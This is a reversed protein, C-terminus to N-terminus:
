ITDFISPLSEENEERILQQTLTTGWTTKDKGKVGVDLDIYIGLNQLQQRLQNLQEKRPDTKDLSDIVQSLEAMSTVSDPKKKWDDKKASLSELIADLADIIAQKKKEEESEEMQVRMRNYMDQYFASNPDRIQNVIDDAYDATVTFRDYQARLTDEVSIGTARYVVDILAGYMEMRQQARKAGEQTGDGGDCGTMMQALWAVMDGSGSAGTELFPTNQTYREDLGVIRGVPIRSDVTELRVEGGYGFYGTEAKTLVGKQVLDDLFSNYSEQTMNRFDYKRSLDRIEGDTLKPRGSKAYANTRNTILDDLTGGYFFSRSQNSRQAPTQAPKLPLYRGYVRGIDM